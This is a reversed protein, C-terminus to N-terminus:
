ISNDKDKNGNKRERKYIIYGNKKLFKISSDIMFDFDRQQVENYEDVDLPYTTIIHKVGKNSKEYLIKLPLNKYVVYAFKKKPDGSDIDLPIGKGQKILSILNTEDAYTLELNYRQQIRELSHKGM